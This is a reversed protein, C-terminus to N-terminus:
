RHSRVVFPQLGPRRDAPPGRGCANQSRGIASSCPVSRRWARRMWQMPMPPAPMHPMASTSARSPWATLPESTEREAAVSRSARRPKATRMPWRASATASASRTTAVLATPGSLTSHARARCSPMGTSGRPAISASSIRERRPTATAPLWPLVVVALMNALMKSTAPKSGVNTIPPTTVSSPPLARWPLPGCRIASASSLSADNRCRVGAVATTVLM